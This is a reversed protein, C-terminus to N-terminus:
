PRLKGALKMAAYEEIRRIHGGGRRFKAAIEATTMGQDRMKKVRREIPRLGLEDTSPRFSRDLNETAFEAMDAIRRVTGPRKRVSTAIEPVPVGQELANVIVREIPRLESM